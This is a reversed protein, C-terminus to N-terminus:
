LPMMSFKRSSRSSSVAFPWTKAVSVSESTTAWRTASPSRSPRRHRRRRDGRRQLAELAGKREGKEELALGIQQDARPAARREGDAPAVLADIEAGVRQRERGERGGDGIEVLAVPDDSVRSPARRGHRRRRTPRAAGGAAARGPGEEDVLAVIAVEHGLLDVLLRLDDAARQRMIEIEGLAHHAQREIQCEIRLVSERTVM